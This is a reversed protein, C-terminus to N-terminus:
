ELTKLDEPSNVNKFSVLNLDFKKISEEISIYKIQWYDRLLNVLKFKKKKLNNRSSVYAKEIPYIALLPELFGSEWRPICCDYNQCEKIMYAIVEYKILPNDCSLAFAKQYGLVKLEKFASYLGLMAGRMKQDLIINDDIIFAMIKDFNIKNLCNQVQNKSNAVLFIDYPFQSLVDLQHEILAKGKFKFFCKDTGFRYSRGGILIIFALNKNKVKIKLM